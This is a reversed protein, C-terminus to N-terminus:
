VREFIGPSAHLAGHKREARAREVVARAAATASGVRTGGEIRITFMRASESSVAAVYREHRRRVQEDAEPGGLHATMHPVNLAILLPLDDDASPRLEIL